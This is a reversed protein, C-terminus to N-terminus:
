ILTALYSRVWARLQPWVTDHRALEVQSFDRYLKGADPYYRISETWFAADADAPSDEVIVGGDGRAFWTRVVLATSAGGDGHAASVAEHWWARRDDGRFPRMLAILHAIRDAGSANEGANRRTRLADWAEGLAPLVLGGDSALTLMGGAAACWACAKQEANTAFDAGDEPAQPPSFPGLDDPALAAFGLGDVVWRLRQLKAPNTTALLLPRRRAEAM